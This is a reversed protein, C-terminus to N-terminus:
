MVDKWSYEGNKLMGLVNNITSRKEFKTSLGQRDYLIKKTDLEQHVYYNFKLFFKEISPTTKTHYAKREEQMIQYRLTFTLWNRLTIKHKEKKTRTQLGFAKEYQTIPIPIIKYICNQIRKWMINTFKCDLIIHFTDEPIKRCLPCPNLSNHWKNYNSTTYFNLHIQEWINSKTVETFFSDHINEWVSNWEIYNPIAEFWKELYFNCKELYLM